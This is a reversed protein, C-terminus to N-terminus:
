HHQAKKEHAQQGKTHCKQFLQKPRRNKSQTTQKKIDLEKYIGSILDKDTTDNAFLKEGEVPLRKMKNITKKM